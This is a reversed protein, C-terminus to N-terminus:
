FNTSGAPTGGSYPVSAGTVVNGTYTGTSGGSFAIGTDMSGISNDRVTLSGSTFLEIGFTNLAVPANSVHNDQVISGPAYEARIGAASGLGSPNTGVVNNKTVWAGAGQALIGYANAIVTSGGTDIVQNHRIINGRGMAALGVYTNADARLGELVHGGTNVGSSNELQVGFYFGKITGNKLTVNLRNLAHIGIAQTGLGAAGGGIRHDNLDIVVNHSLIEIASGSAMTTFLDGTLCYVGPVTITYPLSGIATCNVTEAVAPAMPLVAGFLGLGVFRHIRNFRM